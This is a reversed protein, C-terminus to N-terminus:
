HRSKACRYSAADAQDGHGTYRSVFPYLCLNRTVTKGSADKIAASLTRPAKGQEVWATLAALADTPVPGTSTANGCHDVGPALFLRYFDDVR